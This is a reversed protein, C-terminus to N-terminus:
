LEIMKFDDAGNAMVFDRISIGKESNIIFPHKRAYEPSIKKMWSDMEYYPLRIHSYPYLKNFLKLIGKSDMDDTKKKFAIYFAKRMSNEIIIFPELYRIYVEKEFIFDENISYGVAFDDGWHELIIGPRCVPKGNISKIGLCAREMPTPINSYDDDWEAPTNTGYAVSDFGRERPDLGTLELDRQEPLEGSLIGSAGYGNESVLVFGMWNKDDRKFASNIINWMEESCDRNRNNQM